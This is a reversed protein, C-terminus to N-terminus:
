PMPKLGFGAIMLQATAGESPGPRHDEPHRPFMFNYIVLGDKGSAFLESLKVKARAGDAGLGDFVYDEPVLGGPPL